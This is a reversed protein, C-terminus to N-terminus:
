RQTSAHDITIGHTPNGSASKILFTWGVDFAFNMSNMVSAFETWIGRVRIGVSGHGYM